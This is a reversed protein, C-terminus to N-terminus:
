FDIQWNISDPVQRDRICAKYGPFFSCINMELITRTCLFFFSSNCITHLRVYILLRIFNYTVFDDTVGHQLRFSVMLTINWARSIQVVLWFFPNSYFISRDRFWQTTFLVEDALVNSKLISKLDDTVRKLRIIHTIFM